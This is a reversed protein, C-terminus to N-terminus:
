KEEPLGMSVLVEYLANTLTDASGPISTSYKGQRALEIARAITTFTTNCGEAAYLDEAALAKERDFVEYDKDTIM